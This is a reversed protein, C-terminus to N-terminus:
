HAGSCFEYLGRSRVRRVGTSYVKCFFRDVGEVEVDVGVERYRLGLGSAFGFPVLGVGRCRGFGDFGHVGFVVGGFRVGRLLRRVRRVLGADVGGFFRLVFGCLRYVFLVCGLFGEVGGVGGWGGGVVHFRVVGGGGGGVIVEIDKNEEEIDIRQKSILKKMNNMNETESMISALKIHVSSIYQDTLVYIGRTKKRIVGRNELRKLADHIRRRDIEVQYKSKIYARVEGGNIYSHQTAFELILKELYGLKSLKVTQTRTKQHYSSIYVGYNILDKNLM